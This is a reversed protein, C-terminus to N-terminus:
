RLIFVNGGVRGLNGCGKCNENIKVEINLNPEIAPIM